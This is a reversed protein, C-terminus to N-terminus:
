EIIPPLQPTRKRLDEILETMKTTGEDVLQQGDVEDVGGESNPIGGFKRRKRGLIVSCRAEVHSLIWDVDPEPLLQMGTNVNLDATFNCTWTYCVLTQALVIDLYLAYVQGEWQAFWEPEASVVRKADQIYTLRQAIDGYTENGTLLLGVDYPNLPDIVTSDTIRQIFQVDIIGLLGPHQALDIVYKRQQTTAAIARRVCRPRYRSYQRVAESTAFDLDKQTLEVDIDDIGFKALTEERIRMQTLTTNPM